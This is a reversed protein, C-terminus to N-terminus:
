TGGFMSPPVVSRVADIIRNVKGKIEALSTEEARSQILSQLRGAAIVGTSVDVKTGPDVLTEYGRVMVTEYFAM